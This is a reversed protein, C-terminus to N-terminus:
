CDQLRRSASRMPAASRLIVGLMQVSRSCLDASPRTEGDQLRVCGVTQTAPRALATDGNVIAIRVLIEAVQRDFERLMLRQGMLKM